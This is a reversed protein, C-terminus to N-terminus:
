LPIIYNDSMKFKKELWKKDIPKYEKNSIKEILNMAEDLAECGEKYNKNKYKEVFKLKAKQAKDFKEDNTLEYLIQAVDIM